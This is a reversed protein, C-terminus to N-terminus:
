GWWNLLLCQPLTVKSTMVHSTMAEKKHTPLSIGLNDGLTAAARQQLENSRKHVYVRELMRRDTHGVQQM